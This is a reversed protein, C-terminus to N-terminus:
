NNIRNRISNYPKISGQLFGETIGTVGKPKHLALFESVILFCLFILDIYSCNEFNSM